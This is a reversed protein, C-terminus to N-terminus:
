LNAQSPKHIEVRVLLLSEFDNKAKFSYDNALVVYTKIHSLKPVCLNPERILHPKHFSQIQSASCFM